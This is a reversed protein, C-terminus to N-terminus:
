LIPNSPSIHTNLIYGDGSIKQSFVALCGTRSINQVYTFYTNSNNEPPTLSSIVAPDYNLTKEYDVVVSSAGSPINQQLFAGADTLGSYPVGTLLTGDGIFVGRNFPTATNIAFLETEQGGSIVQFSFGTSSATIKADKDVFVISNGQLYLDKFPYEPSGLNFEGSAVPLINGSILMNGDLRLNGGAIHVRESPAFDKGIGIGLKYKGSAVEALKIVENKSDIKLLNRDISDRVLFANENGTVGSLVFSSNSRLLLNNGSIELKDADPYYFFSKAGSVYGNRNYLIEGNSGPALTATGPIGQVGLFGVNINSQPTSNVTSSSSSQTVNVTSSTQNLNISTSSPSVVQTSAGGSIVVNIKQPEQAM